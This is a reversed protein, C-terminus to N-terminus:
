YVVALRMSDPSRGEKSLVRCKEPVVIIASVLM